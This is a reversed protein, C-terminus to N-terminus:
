KQTFWFDDSLFPFGPFPDSRLAQSFIEETANRGFEPTRQTAEGRRISPYAEDDRRAIVGFEGRVARDSIRECARVPDIFIDQQFCV